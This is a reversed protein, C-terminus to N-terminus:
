DSVALSSELPQPLTKPKSRELVAIEVPIVGSGLMRLQRAAQTSVDIIRSRIYPGRNNIRVTVERGNRLNKVKVMTGMRLTRHAATLSNQNYIEGNATRRGHFEGGYFSAKGQQRWATPTLSPEALTSEPNVLALQTNGPSDEQSSTKRPEGPPVTTAPPSPAQSPPPPPPSPALPSLPAQPPPLVRPALWLAALIVLVIITVKWFHRRVIEQM